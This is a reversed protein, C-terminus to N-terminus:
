IGLRRRFRRGLEKALERGGYDAISTPYHPPPAPLESAFPACAALGGNAAEAEAISAASLDLVPQAASLSDAPPGPPNSVHTFRHGSYYEGDVVLQYRSASAAPVMAEYVGQIPICFETEYMKEQLVLLLHTTKGNM